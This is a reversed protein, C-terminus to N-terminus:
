MLKSSVVFCSNRGSAKHLWLGMERWMPNGKWGWAKLKLTKSTYLFSCTVHILASFISLDHCTTITDLVTLCVTKLMQAIRVKLGLVLILTPISVSWVWLTTPPPLPAANLYRYQQIWKSSACILKIFCIFRVNEFVIIIGVFVSIFFINRSVM